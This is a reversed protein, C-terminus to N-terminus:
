NSLGLRDFLHVLDPILGRDMAFSYFASLAAICAIAFAVNYAVTLWDISAFWLRLDIYWFTLFDIWKSGSSNGTSQPKTHPHRLGATDDMEEIQERTLPSM